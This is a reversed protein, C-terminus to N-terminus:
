PKLQEGPRSKPPLLEAISRLSHLHYSLGKSTISYVRRDRCEPNAWKGLVLGQEELEYLLPYLTGPSVRTGTRDGLRQMLEYGHRSTDRLLDLVFLDLFNRVTRDVFGELDNSSLMKLAMQRGLQGRSM